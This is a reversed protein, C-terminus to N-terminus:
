CEAGRGTCRLIKWKFRTGIKGSEDKIMIVIKSNMVGYTRTVSKECACETTGRSFPPWVIENRDTQGLIIFFGKDASSRILRGFGQRLRM